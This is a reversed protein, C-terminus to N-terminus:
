KPVLSKMAAAFLPAYHTADAAPCACTFTLKTGSGGDFFYMEYHLARGRATLDVPARYGAANTATAFPELAGVKAGLQTFAAQNRTMAQVCWNGLDGKALEANVTIMAKGQNPGTAEIATPYSSGPLDIKAWGLPVTYTFIDPV